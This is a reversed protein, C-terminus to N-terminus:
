EIDNIACFQLERKVEMEEVLYVSRSSLGQVKTEETDEAGLM